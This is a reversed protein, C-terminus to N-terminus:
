ELRVPPTGTFYVQVGLERQDSGIRAAANLEFDIEVVGPALAPLAASYENEGASSFEVAPLASGNVRVSLLTRPRYALLAEPLHFLFRLTAGALAEPLELSVSFRRQTWRSSGYELEHWGRGLTLAHAAAYRSEALLFARVDGQESVPDAEAPSIGSTFYRLNSWGARQLVRKLGEESFIWFNTPDHNLEREDVLYAMPYAGFNLKRDPTVAAIRTSMYLYRASHALTELALYPNKLHYLVGLMLALGYNSGPLNPRVDLDAVHIGINSQLAAKLARVGEMRNYNTLPHDVADVRAGLSELFFANDGDGCGVDLVPAGGIMRMLEEANVGMERDLIQLSALTRWPYWQGHELHTQNKIAKLRDHFRSAQEDLSHTSM